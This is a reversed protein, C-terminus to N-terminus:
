FSTRFKTEDRTTNQVHLSGLRPKARRLPQNEGARDNEDHNQTYGGIKFRVDAPQVEELGPHIEGGDREAQAPIAPAIEDADRGRAQPIVCIEEGRSEEEVTQLLKRLPHMGAM